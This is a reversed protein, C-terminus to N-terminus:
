RPYPLWIIDARNAIAASVSGCPNGDSLPRAARIANRWGGAGPELGVCDETLVEPIPPIRQM